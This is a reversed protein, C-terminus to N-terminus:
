EGRIGPENTERVGIEGWQVSSARGSRVRCTTAPKGYGQFLMIPIGLVPVFGTLAGYGIMPGVDGCGRKYGHYVGLAVIGWWAIFMWQPIPQFDDLGEVPFDAPSGHVIANQFPDLPAQIPNPPIAGESDDYAFPPFATGQYPGTEPWRFRFLSEDVLAPPRVMRFAPVPTSRFEQYMRPTNTVRTVHPNPM